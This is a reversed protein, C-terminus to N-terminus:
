WKLILMLHSRAYLLDISNHRDAKLIFFIFLFFAKRRGSYLTFLSYFGTNANHYLALLFSSLNYLANFTQNM